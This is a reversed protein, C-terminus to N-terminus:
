AQPATRNWQEAQDDTLRYYVGEPKRPNFRKGSKTEMPFQSRGYHKNLHRSLSSWLSVIQSPQRNLAEALEANTFWDGPHAALIDMIDSVIVTTEYSRAKLRALDEDSWPLENRSEAATAAPQAAPVTLEALYRYVAPVHENPVPVYQFGASDSTPLDNM